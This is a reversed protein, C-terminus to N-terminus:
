LNIRTDDDFKWNYQEGAGVPILQDGDLEYHDPCDWPKHNLTISGTNEALQYFAAGYKSAFGELKDLADYQEFVEAYLELAAHATYCGACGCASEKRQRQHPASDTGLFFRPDGSIAAAILAQQHQKRKLIPLCYYHPKIGGSFIANRNYLLHHATITAATNEKCQKVFQVAESTTIHELVIRLQPFQERIPILEHELFLRERDFIDTDPSTVEGHCLLPVNREQMAELIPYIAKLSTVGAESHTTAGAPYLKFGIIDAHEAAEAVDNLRTTPTLYLAMLPQFKVTPPVVALIRQQYALAQAVTTVPPVLNPMIIARAFQRASHPVVTSLASGDRVHLHMDDPSQITLSNM